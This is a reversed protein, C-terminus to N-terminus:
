ARRFRSGALRFVASSLKAVEQDPAIRTVGRENVGAADVRGAERRAERDGATERARRRSRYGPTLDSSDPDSGLFRALPMRCAAAHHPGARLRTNDLASYKTAAGAVLGNRPHHGSPPRAEGLIRAIETAIDYWSCARRERLSLRRLRRRIRGARPDGRRCRVIRRSGDTSSSPFRAGQRSAPWSRDLSSRRGAPGSPAGFLSEVQLVVATRGSRSGDGLLKSAAYVGQPQASRGRRVPAVRHRRVSVHLLPRAHRRRGCGGQRPGTGRHM